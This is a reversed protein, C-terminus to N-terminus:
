AKPTFCFEDCIQETIMYATASQPSMGMQQAIDAVRGPNAIAFWLHDRVLKLLEAKATMMRTSNV